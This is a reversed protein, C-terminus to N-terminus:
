AVADVRCPKDESSSRAARLLVANRERQVRAAAVQYALDPFRVVFRDVLEQLRDPSFVEDAGFHSSLVKNLLEQAQPRTLAPNELLAPVDWLRASGSTARSVLWDLM